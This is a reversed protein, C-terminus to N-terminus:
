VFVQRDGAQQSGEPRVVVRRPDVVEHQTRCVCGIAPRDPRGLKRVDQASAVGGIPPDMDGGEEGLNTRLEHKREGPNM